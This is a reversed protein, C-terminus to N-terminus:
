LALCVVNARGGCVFAHLLRGPDMQELMITECDKETRLLHCSYTSTWTAFPFGYSQTGTGSPMPHGRKELQKVWDELLDLHDKVEKKHRTGYRPHRDAFSSITPRIELFAMPKGQLIQMTQDFAKFVARTPQPDTRQKIGYVTWLARKRAKEELHSIDPCAWDWQALTCAGFGRYVHMPAFISCLAFAATCVYQLEATLEGWAVRSWINTLEAFM